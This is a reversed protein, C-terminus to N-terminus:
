HIRRRRQWRLWILPPLLLVLEFGLGCMTRTIIADCGRLPVGDLTEGTVCAETDGFAIGSEAIRYESVLDTFRDGNVDLPYGELAPASGPGFALTNVDLEAVDFTEDGLIAVLVVGRSMPDIINPDSGPTIDVGGFTRIADCGEFPVGDLTEGTVCAQEAGIALGTEQTRYHSVLDTFGDDNVYELHSWAPPFM